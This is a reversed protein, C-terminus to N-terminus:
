LKGLRLLRDARVADYGFGGLVDQIRKLESRDGRLGARLASFQLEDESPVRGGQGTRLLPTADPAQRAVVSASLALLERDFESLPSEGSEAETTRASNLEELMTEAPALKGLLAFGFALRSKVKAQARSHQGFHDIDDAQLQRLVRTLEQLGVDATGLVLRSWGLETRVSYFDTKWTMNSPDSRVAEELLNSASRLENLGDQDGMAVAVRGLFQQAIGEYWLWSAEGPRRQRVDRVLTLQEAFRTQAAAPRNDRLLASGIWSLSDALGIIAEDNSPDIRLAAKKLDISSEYFKIADIRNGEAEAVTGLNNLAYSTELLGLGSETTIAQLAEAHVLYDGFHQGAGALDNAQLDLYGLWYAVNGQEFLLDTLDAPDSSAQQLTREAEAFAQGAQETQQRQM